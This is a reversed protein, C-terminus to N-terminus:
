LGSCCKDVGPPFILPSLRRPKARAKSHGNWLGLVLLAQTCSWSSLWLPCVCFAAGQLPYLVSLGFSLSGVGPCLSKHLAADGPYSVPERVGGLGANWGGLSARCVGELERVEVCTEIESFQNMIPLIVEMSSGVQLDSKNGVLIIPIRPFVCLVLSAVGRLGLVAGAM